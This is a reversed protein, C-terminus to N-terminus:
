YVKKPSFESAFNLSDGHTLIFISTQICSKISAILQKDFTRAKVIVGKIIFNHNVIYLAWNKIVVGRLKLQRAINRLSKIFGSILNIIFLSLVITYFDKGLSDLM